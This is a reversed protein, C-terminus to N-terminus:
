ALHGELASVQKEIRDFLVDLDDDGVRPSASPPPVSSNAPPTAPSAASSASPRTSAADSKKKETKHSSSSGSASARATHSKDRDKSSSSASSKEKDKEKEQKKQYIDEPSPLAAIAAQLAQLWELAEAPTEAQLEVNEAFGAVRLMRGEQSARAGNLWLSKSLKVDREPTRAEGELLFFYLFCDKLVVYERKFKGEKGRRQLPGQRVAGQRAEKIQTMTPLQLNRLVERMRLDRLQAALEERESQASALDGQLAHLCGYLRANENLLAEYRTRLQAIQQELPPPPDLGSPPATARRLAQAAYLQTVLAFILRSVSRGGRALGEASLWVRPVLRGAEALVRGARAVPDPESQCAALLGACRTPEVQEVLAALTETDLEFHPSIATARTWGRVRRLEAEVWGQMAEQANRRLAEAEASGEGGVAAVAANLLGVKLIQWILALIVLQNGSQVDAATARALSCGIKRAGQLAAELNATEESSGSAPSKDAGTM